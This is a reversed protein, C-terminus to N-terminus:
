SSVRYFNQTCLKQKWELQGTHIVFNSMVFIRFQENVEDRKPKSM